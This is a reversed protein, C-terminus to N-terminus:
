KKSKRSHKRSSKKTKNPGFTHSGKTQLNSGLHKQETALKSLKKSVIKGHSNKEMDHMTLNGSTKYAKGHMVEARSGILKEFKKGDIHYFNDDMRMHKKM